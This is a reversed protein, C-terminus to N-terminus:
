NEIHKFFKSNKCIITFFIKKHSFTEKPLKYVIGASIPKTKSLPLDVSIVEIKKSLINKTSFCIGNKYLM